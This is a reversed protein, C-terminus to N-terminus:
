KMHVIPNIFGIRGTPIGIQSEYIASSRGDPNVVFFTKCVRYTIDIGIKFEYPTDCIRRLMELQTVLSIM